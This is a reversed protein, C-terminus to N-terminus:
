NMVIELCIMRMYVEKVFKELMDKNKPTFLDTTFLNINKQRFDILYEVLQKKMIDIDLIFCMQFCQKIVQFFDKLNSDAIKNGIFKVISEQKERDWRVSHINNVKSESELKELGIKKLFKGYIIDFNGRSINYKFYKINDSFNKSLFILYYYSAFVNKVEPLTKKNLTRIKNDTLYLTKIKPLIPLHTLKNYSCDIKEALPLPAIQTLLNYGCYCEILSPYVDLKELRNHTCFLKKVNPMNPLTTLYNNSCDLNIVEKLDSIKTIKCNTCNLETLSNYAPIFEILNYRCDLIKLSPAQEATPLNTIANDSCYLETVSSLQSLLSVEGIKIDLTNLNLNNLDLVTKGSSYFQKIKEEM